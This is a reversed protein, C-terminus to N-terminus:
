GVSKAAAEIGSEGPGSLPLGCLFGALWRDFGMESEIEVVEEGLAHAVRAVMESPDFSCVLPVMGRDRVERLIWEPEMGEILAVAEIADPTLFLLHIQRIREIVRGWVEAMRDPDDPVSVVMATKSGELEAFSMSAGWAGRMGEDGLVDASSVLLWHATGLCARWDISGRDLSGGVFDIQNFVFDTEAGMESAAELVSSAAEGSGPWGLCVMKIPVPAM